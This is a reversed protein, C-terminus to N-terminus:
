GMLDRRAGAGAWDLDSLAEGHEIATMLRYRLQDFEGTTSLGVLLTLLPAGRAPGGYENLGLVLVVREDATLDISALEAGGM